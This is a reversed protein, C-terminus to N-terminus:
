FESFIYNGIYSIFDNQYEIYKTFTKNEVFRKESQEKCLQALTEMLKDYKEVFEDKLFLDSFLYKVHLFNELEGLIIIWVIVKSQDKEEKEKISNTLIMQEMKTKPSHLSLKDAEYIYLNTKKILSELANQRMQNITIRKQMEIAEEAKQSESKSIIYTLFILSVTSLLTFLPNLIGGIFDGFENQKFESEENINDIYYLKLGYTIAFYIILLTVSSILIITIIRTRNNM